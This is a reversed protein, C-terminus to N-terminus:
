QQRHAGAGDHRQKRANVALPRSQPGGDRKQKKCRRAVDQRQGVRAANQPRLKGDGPQDQAQDKADANPKQHRQQKALIVGFMVRLGIRQKGLLGGHRRRGKAQQQGQHRQQNGARQFQPRQGGGHGRQLQWQRPGCGPLGGQQVPHGKVGCPALFAHAHLARQQNCQKQQDACRGELAHVVDNFAGVAPGAHGQAQGGEGQQHRCQM